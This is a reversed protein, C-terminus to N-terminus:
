YFINKYIHINKLFPTLVNVSEEYSYWSIKQHNNLIYSIYRRKYDMPCRFTGNNILFVIFRFYYCFAQCVSCVMILNNRNVYLTIILSFKKDNHWQIPSQQPM